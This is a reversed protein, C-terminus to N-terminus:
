GLLVNDHIFNQNFFHAYSLNFTQLFEIKKSGEFVPLKTSFADSSCLLPLLIKEFPEIECIKQLISIKESSVLALYVFTEYSEHVEIRSEISHSYECIYCCKFHWDRM